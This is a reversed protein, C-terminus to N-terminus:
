KPKDDLKQFMTETWKKKYTEEGYAIYRKYDALTLHVGDAGKFEFEVPDCVTEYYRSEYKYSTYRNLYYGKLECLVSVEGDPGHGKMEVYETDDGITMHPGTRYGTYYKWDVSTFAYRKRNKECDFYFSLPDYHNIKGTFHRMWLRSRDDFDVYLLLWNAPLGFSRTREVWLNGGMAEGLFRGQFNVFFDCTNSATYPPQSVRDIKAFTDRNASFGERSRMKLNEAQKLEPVPSGRAEFTGIEEDGRHISMNYNPFTGWVAVKYGDPHESEIRHDLLRTTSMGEFLTEVKDGLYYWVQTNNRWETDSIHEYRIWHRNHWHKKGMKNIIICVKKHGEEYSNLLYFWYEGRTFTMKGTNWNAEDHSSWPPGVRWHEFRPHHKM